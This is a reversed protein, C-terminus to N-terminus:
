KVRKPPEWNWVDSYFLFAGWHPDAKIYHKDTRKKILIMIHTIQKLSYNKSLHKVCRDQIEGWSILVMKHHLYGYLFNKFNQTM